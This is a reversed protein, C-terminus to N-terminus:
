DFRESTPLSDKWEWQLGSYVKWGGGIDSVVFRYNYSGNKGIEKGNFVLNVQYYLNDPLLTIMAPTKEINDAYIIARRCVDPDNSTGSPPSSLIDEKRYGAEIAVKDWFEDNIRGYEEQSIEKKSDRLVYATRGQPMCEELDFKVSKWAEIGFNEVVTNYQRRLQALRNEKANRSEIEVIRLQEAKALTMVSESEITDNGYDNTYIGLSTINNFKQLRMADLYSEIAEEKTRFSGDSAQTQTMIVAIIILVICFLCLLVKTNVKGIKFEM